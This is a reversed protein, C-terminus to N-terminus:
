PNEDILRRGTIVAIDLIKDPKLHVRGTGTEPMVPIVVDQGILSGSARIHQGLRGDITPPLNAEHIIITGFTTVYKGVEAPVTCEFLTGVRVPIVGEKQDSSEGMQTFKMEIEMDIEM